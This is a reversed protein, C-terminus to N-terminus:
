LCRRLLRRKICRSIERKGSADVSPGLNLQVHRHCITFCQPDDLSKSQQPTVVAVCRDFKAMKHSSYIVIFMCVVWLTGIIVRQSLSM